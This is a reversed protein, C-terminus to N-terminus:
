RSAPGPVLLPVLLVRLDHLFATLKCAVGRREVLALDSLTRACLDPLEDLAPPRSADEDFVLRRLVRKADTPADNPHATLRHAEDPPCFGLDETCSELRRREVDSAAVFGTVFWAEADQHPTAVIVPLPEDLARVIALAQDIADIRALDGDTDHVVILADPPPDLAALLVIFVRRWLGAEPKLPKGDIFGRLKIPRGGIRVQRGLEEADARARGLPYFRTHEPGEETSSRGCYSRHWALSEENIWHAAGRRVAEDLLVRDALFTALARHAQDECALAIRVAGDGM